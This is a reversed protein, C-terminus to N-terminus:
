QHPDTLFIYGHLPFVLCVSHSLFVPSNGTLIVTLATPVSSCRLLSLIFILSPFVCTFLRHFIGGPSETEMEAEGNDATQMQKM